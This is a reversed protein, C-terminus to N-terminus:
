FLNNLLQPTNALGVQWLLAIIFIIWLLSYAFYKKVWSSNIKLGMKKFYYVYFSLEEKSIDQRNELQASTLLCKKFVKDQLVFIIIFLVIWQWGLYFPSTVYALIILLHAWFILGFDNKLM